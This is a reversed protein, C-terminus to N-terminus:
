TETSENEEKELLESINIKKKEEKIEKDISGVIKPANTYLETFNKSAQIINNTLMNYEEISSFDGNALDEVISSSITRSNAIIELLASKVKMFDKNFEKKLSSKTM